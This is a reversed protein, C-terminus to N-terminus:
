DMNYVLNHHVRSIFSENDKKLREIREAEEPNESKWESSLKNYNTMFKNMVKDLASNMASEIESRDALNAAIDNM